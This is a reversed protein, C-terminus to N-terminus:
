VYQAERALSIIYQQLPSKDSHLDTHTHIHRGAQTIAKALHCGGRSMCLQILGLWEGVLYIYVCVCLGFSLMCKLHIKHPDKTRVMLAPKMLLM